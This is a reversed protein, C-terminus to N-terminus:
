EPLSASEFGSSSGDAGGPIVRRAADELEPGAAQRDGELHLDAGRVRALSHQHRLARIARRTEQRELLPWPADSDTSEEREVVILTSQM